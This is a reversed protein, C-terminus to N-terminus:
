RKIKAKAEMFNTLYLFQSLKSANKKGGQRMTIKIKLIKLKYKFPGIEYIKKYSAMSGKQFYAPYPHYYYYYYFSLQM